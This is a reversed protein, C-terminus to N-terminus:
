AEIWLFRARLKNQISCYLKNTIAAIAFTFMFYVFYALFIWIWAREMNSKLMIDRISKAPIHLFILFMILSNVPYLWQNIIKVINISMSFIIYMCCFIMVGYNLINNLIDTYLAYLILLIVMIFVVKEKNGQLKKYITDEYEFVIMGLYFNFLNASVSNSPYDLTLYNRVFVSLFFLLILIIFRFESKIAIRLIPFLLYLWLVLSVFWLVSNTPFPPMKVGSGIISLCYNILLLIESVFVGCFILFYSAIIKYVSYQHFFISDTIVTIGYALLLALLLKQLQHLFIKQNRNDGGQKYYLYFYNYGSCIVFVIIGQSGMPFLQLHFFIIGLLSFIKILTISPNYVRTQDNM